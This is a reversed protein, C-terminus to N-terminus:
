NSGIVNGVREGDAVGCLKPPIGSLFFDPSYCNSHPFKQSPCGYCHDKEIWESGAKKGNAASKSEGSDGHDEGGGGGGRDGGGNRM